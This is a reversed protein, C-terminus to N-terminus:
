GSRWPERRCGGARSCRRRRGGTRGSGAACTRRVPGDAAGGHPDPLSDPASRAGGIGANPAPGHGPTSTQRCAVYTRQGQPNTSPPYTTTRPTSTPTRRTPASTARKATPPSPGGSLGRRIREARGDHAPRQPCRVFARAFGPRTRIVSTCSILQPLVVGPCDRLRRPTENTTTSARTAAPRPTTGAAGALASEDAGPAQAQPQFAKPWSPSPVVVFRSVGTWTAPSVPTVAM